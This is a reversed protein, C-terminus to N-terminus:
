HVTAKLWESVRESIMMITLNPSASPITAFVSADVVYLNDTGRVKCNQGLVANPDDDPGIPATGSAHCFSRINARMYAKLREDSSVVEDSLGAVRQYANAMEDSRLVKWALRVGDMLRREDELDSCCNLEIKPQVMPDPSALSLHGHGRPLMLVVALTAVVSVGAEEILAPAGTLDNHTMMVLQMDDVKSSGPATFRAMIQIFPDRGIVCEGPLPVLRIPVTAHDWVRAGVGPLDIASKIGLAELELKPGIGSRLLIAPSGISGACLTVCEAEETNGDTLRVGRAHDGDLILQDVVCNARITLNKRSRAGNIHSLLTSVRTNGTRNMPWPGVGSGELDNHDKIKPFGASLCAQCFAQQIPILEDEGYRAIPIPGNRGHHPGLGGLDAELRQYYPVVDQWRWETNGLEAWADFDSPRAWLAAAANIVCTGGVVKGRSYPETRGEVPFAKYGWDHAPGALSKLDLLDAPTTEESEYDPGAELLLVSTNGEESLRAALIAGASGAGVIIHSRM